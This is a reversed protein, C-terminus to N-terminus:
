IYTTLYIPLLYTRLQDAGFTQQINTWRPDMSVIGTHLRYAIYPVLQVASCQVGDWGELGTTQEGQLGLMKLALRALVEDM